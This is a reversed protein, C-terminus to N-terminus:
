KLTTGSLNIKRAFSIAYEGIEQLSFASKGLFYDLFAGAIGNSAFMGSAKEERNMFSLSFDNLFVNHIKIKVDDFVDHPLSRFLKRMLDENQIFTSVLDKIFCDFRAGERLVSAKWKEMFSAMIENELHSLVDRIDKYHNYFTGRNVDARIVVESVTIKNIDKKESLLDVVANQIMKESRISNKYM